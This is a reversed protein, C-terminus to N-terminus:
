RVVTRVVKGYVDIVEIGELQANNMTCQVNVVDTTPNPYVVVDVQDRDAALADVATADTVEGSKNNATRVLVIDDIYNVSYDLTSSSSVTNRFAIRRGNGTYNAFDVTIDETNTSSNNITKVSTFNGQADVVGVQLRYVAKPQRLKFTMTLSSVPDNVNLEPLAYVCRNKMRLTYSGSTAYTANYYVQPKTANTLAVDEHTVEWCRPEVGTEATTSATYDDFNESYPLEFIGCAAPTIDLTIDDIYNVSYDLTSSSSVTNRFAIRRGNGTYNAFDVTIDETETSSNNITKVSTFNGQADVVGVQLRYVAKPQRLRFTMTLENLSQNVNLEPLAYVCRNKMRLTYSGSTAYTANYYVQPKTANTLAVDEHTVEWCRPEVGTEATTSATYDDFNESYPLEFIGCAAPTIDLTIDDIYNVSYDLTSSSSVTNRFAIRRGNGTYNAFDVTIDETETSSNNITKVSTFNGQADVVGVQLRYVAKPQRLRFTMTLENVSQNVNLEPLAYVCRNKMRLTYSGSTAYTANYYVQPKTANTLAVDEHTVEWCRPQVGTEATTSQTYDDFNETYPLEIIGCVQEPIETLTIDDIYNYSYNYSYGDALVNRFAITNGWGEFGSFDVTVKEVETTSNNIRQVPVFMQGNWVGVELQYYAKPQRVYMELKVRNIPIQTESSLEPMAYVGRYNLLLSYNGSHAYASKYYLQPRNADTMQVDPQVLEWCTPEVGTAATTSTTYSDFDETYPLMIGQCADTLVVDDIYNYSYNRVTNDGSINRFAIRRGNGNYDSFDCEVFELGTGSNNFTAVPVFTGNDEWVGVQLAYYSKPQRLYMELKVQKVSVDESLEPMAYVGRYNLLLSYKGSHAYDSRYYLQPRNAETMQVDSQVLEWCTPEVGTAATTSSTFGDFNEAYPLTIPECNYMVTIDDIYNVSYDLTSSNSVTNRFAIRHGNGSYDAFDVTIDETETSANNITKVLEFVGDANVVGVQLRYVANPQRLKFTMVLKSVNVDADIEPLAYVCRNKLRLTYSGSTAYSANYYVQPKTANTLAVDETVVDWCLPEVGTAATTSSTQSEFDETYPLQISGCADTLRIDDLYNISIAITSSGGLVNRFAIRGGAGMYSSFECTVFEVETTSNNFRKVPVFTGDDEWVGVELQYVAKPQRLYMGLVVERVKFNESLYPMAYVGRNNLKLSYSGSHAFDSKYYLQPRTTETMAVDEQVLEWCAPEVGTAATTRSTYDDFKETYPLTIPECNYMVTIDDIYNISYDLTSSNSVTNRFAIRHGNGTYDAFDVTIDETETSANNITKVLEFVGDANVVGVQLRYVANPQRLKFTMVLKSVNVDADIEPLAYVCRNKLRLTYSGSTAYSANYYVQPKTANTLAVDETVVDWCLPEVGTAATTSSTQSEFDETYPLQISGCADTLRIDDLYNISIAITSSGGLVNRFAIRGGAGMYSSFECTVFEVETTSNNFRKVPVFTGDDEWVGVELQYVAKPQRLYMGLVVERVKFNESLYPMAYVGRNNLKLSYSGSHAFDSKYYLQPRTSETMAVDEQVLEWCAPEVGTAATTRSTYDDFNETYPLTIPECNYMLTIDDIYNLSYNLTSGNPVTNRFAIRHGSGTYNAFDVTIDETETSANNITKVLEFVGDPNVVGVQLRYMANPQRLKFTMLLQSVNVKEDFEPMAYVCRNKLRLTYSGSTAYSANYYVQPMTANTLAVDESVVDWCRPQVGTEAKTSTTYSDFTETYPLVAIPDCHVVTLHLIDESECGDNNVYGFTYTGSETYTVGHWEYFNNATKTVVNHTSHYITLHLTVVSDCGNAATFTHNYDGSATYTRGNWEYTDCATVYLDEHQSSKVTLNLILEKDCGNNDAVIRTYTGSTSYTTGFWTYSDCATVDSINDPNVFYQYSVTMNGSGEADHVALYYVGCEQARCGNWALVSDASAHLVMTGSPAYLQMTCRRNTRFSLSDGVGAALKFWHINGTGPTAITATTNRELTDANVTEMMREDVYQRSASSMRLANNWFRFTIINRSYIVPEGGNPDFEFNNTNIPQPDVQLMTVLQLPNAFPNVDVVTRNDFDDNYWYEYRSIGDGGEPQAYFWAQHLTVITGNGTMLCGTLSHLGAGVNAVDLNLLITRNQPSVEIAPRDQGDIAYHYVLTSTDALESQRTVCYFVYSHLDASAGTGIQMNLTHLGEALSSVDLLITGNNVLGTRRDDYNQDFWCTYNFDSNSSNPMKYFLYSHLETAAGSGVQMNLTHLGVPLNGVDLLLTGNTFSGSQREEGNQDFWCTYDMSSSADSYTIKYFLYSHLEASAGGGIQINLTHLGDSLQNVDLLIGGNSFPITQRSAYDQDFWCTYNFDSSGSYPMKYFLYCHLDASAGSGIQMNLTHLGGILNEVDLQLLGNTFSGSQIDESNQDFWCTYDMEYDGTSNSELVKYFLATRPPSCRGDRDRLHINLTHLGLELSSVDIQNQWSTASGIIAAARNEYSQDFWYEVVNDYPNNVTLHLTDVQTCGNEDEHIYTYDGTFFYDIDHWIYRRNVTASIATHVPNNITLHLIEVQPNGNGDTYSYTYDGSETYVTGHWTYSGCASVTDGPPAIDIRINDIAAGPNNGGNDNNHWCFFLNYEGTTPITIRSVQKTWELNGVLQGGGDVPIYSPPLLNPDWLSYVPMFSPDTSAPLLAARLFDHDPEGNAKWDFSIIYEGAEMSLPRYATVSSASSTTYGDTTGGDNSIYLAKSGGSTHNTTSGIVWQNSGSGNIFNWCDTNGEFNESFPLQSSCPLIIAKILWSIIESDSILGLNNGWLRSDENGAYYTGAAPYQANVNHFAIYLDQTGDLYVPPNLIIEKWSDEEATTVIFSESYVVYNSSPLGLYVTLDYNGASVAYMQVKCLSHGETLVSAPFSVGWYENHVDIDDDMVYHPIDNVCYSLTDGSLHEFQATLNVSSGTAIFKRPNYMYGDSWRVFRNGITANARVTVTDGFSYIGSGSVTGYSSNNSVATVTTSGGWNYNPEIGIVAANDENFHFLTSTTQPNLSGITYFGNADGSWGWNFNFVGTENDYGDCVFAHNGQDNDHGRYLIPRENDLENRLMTKWENDSYDCYWVSHLTSNYKFYSRLANEASPQNIDFYNPSFASSGDSGYNMEVAVGIHSMLMAVAEASDTGGNAATLKTPMKNWNYTTNGFDVLPSDGYTDHHYRHSGYGTTPFNWKKMIQATATAVCGAWAHGGPGHNDNPCLANYYQNQDWETTLLPGVVNGSKPIAISGPENSLLLNWDQLPANPDSAPLGGKGSTQERWWAIQEEYSQLWSRLNSPMDKTEFRNTHSYALIPIVCNDAAVIIFGQQSEGGKQIGDISFIYFEHWPTQATIDTLEDVQQKSTARLFNEAVTRATKPDVPSASIALNGLLLLLLIIKKM